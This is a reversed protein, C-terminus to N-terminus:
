SVYDWRDRYKAGLARLRNLEVVTRNGKPNRYVVSRDNLKPEKKELYRSPVIYVEPLIKCDHIKDLYCVFILYHHDSTDKINDIPFCTTGRLGKVDVTIRDGNEKVVVIDVAKKNGLTMYANAGLRYLMSLVYFESALNTNGSKEGM